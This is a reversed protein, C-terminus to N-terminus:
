RWDGLVVFGAWGFPDRWKPDRWMSMQAARLAAAPRMREAGAMNAYVRRMLEGTARDDVSWLSAMVSRAGAFM